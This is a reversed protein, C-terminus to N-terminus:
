MWMFFSTNGTYSGIDDQIAGVLLVVWDVLTVIGFIGGCTFTYYAWMWKSTGMYHRHIGFGGLFTCFAWAGWPNVSSRGMMASGSQSNAMLSIGNEAFLNIDQLSVETAAAFANEIANDNLVYDNDEAFSNFSLAAMAVLAFIVKKM